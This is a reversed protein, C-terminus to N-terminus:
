ALTFPYRESCSSMWIIWYFHDQLARKRHISSSDLIIKLKDDETGDFAALLLRDIKM